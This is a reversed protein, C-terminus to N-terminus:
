PGALWTDHARGGAHHSAREGKSPTPKCRMVDSGFAVITWGDARVADELKTAERQLADARGTKGGRRALTARSRLHRAERLRELAEARGSAQVPALAEAPTFGEAWDVADAVSRWVFCEADAAKVADRFERQAPTLRGTRTKLEIFALRRRIPDTVILDAIGPTIGSPGRQRHAETSWTAIGRARLEARIAKSLAAEPKM